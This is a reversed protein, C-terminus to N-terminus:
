EDLQGLSFISSHLPPIYYVDMLAHHEENQCWFVITGHSYISVWSGNSFKVTGMKAEHLESFTAKFRTM